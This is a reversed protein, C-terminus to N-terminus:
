ENGKVDINLLSNINKRKYPDLLRENMEIFTEDKHKEKYIKYQELLAKKFEEQQEKSYMSENSDM